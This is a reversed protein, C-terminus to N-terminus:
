LVVFRVSDTFKASIFCIYTIHHFSMNLLTIDFGVYLAVCVVSPMMNPPKVITLELSKIM